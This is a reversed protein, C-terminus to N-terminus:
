GYSLLYEIHGILMAEFKQPRIRGDLAGPLYVKTVRHARPAAFSGGGGGGPPTARLAHADGSCSHFINWCNRFGTYINNELFYNVYTSGHMSPHV